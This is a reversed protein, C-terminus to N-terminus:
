EYNEFLSYNKIEERPIDCDVPVFLKVDKFSVCVEYDRFETYHEVTFYINGDLFKVNRPHIFERRLYSDFNIFNFLKIYDCKMNKISFMEMLRNYEHINM